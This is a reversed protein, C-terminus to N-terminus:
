DPRPDAPGGLRQDTATRCRLWRFDVPFVVSGYYTPDHRSLPALLSLNKRGSARQGGRWVYPEAQKLLPNLEDAIKQAAAHSEM